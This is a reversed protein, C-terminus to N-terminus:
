TKQNVQIFMIAQLINADMRDESSLELLPLSCASLYDHYANTIRNIQNPKLYAEGESFMRGDITEEMASMYIIIANERLREQEFLHWNFTLLADYNRIVRGYVVETIHSRDIFINKSPYCSLLSQYAGAYVGALFDKSYKTPKYTNKIMPYELIKVLERLLSSKGSKDVGEFLILM